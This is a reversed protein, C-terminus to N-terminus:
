EAVAPEGIEIKAREDAVHQYMVSGAMALVGMVVYLWRLNSRDLNGVWHDVVSVMLAGIVFFIVSCLWIRNAQRGAVEPLEFGGALWFGALLVILIVTRLPTFTFEM